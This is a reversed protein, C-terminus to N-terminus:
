RLWPRRRGRRGARRHALLEDAFATMTPQRDAPDKALARLCCAELDPPVERGAPAVASPPPPPQNLVRDMVEELENGVILNKLALIEYLVSGLNYVDTREDLDADGRAQEPSMYLPTGYRRGPRTLEHGVADPGRPPEPTQLEALPPGAGAAADDAAAPADMRVKALGWDLVTTQQFAGVLINAPKLDRHIVGRSHAHAVTHAASIAVDVLRPMPWDPEVARDKAALSMLLERLNQGVLKKMTFYLSGDARRGLEYVPVTGPHAILATVRAERLFRQQEGEDDALHPHLAKFVVERGLNADVCTQLTATGGEALPRFNRYKLAGAKWYREFSADTLAALLPADPPDRPPDPM